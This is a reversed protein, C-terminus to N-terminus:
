RLLLILGTTKPKPFSPTITLGRTLMKLLPNDTKESEEVDGTWGLFGDRSQAALTVQSGLPLWLESHVDTQAVVPGATFAGTGSVNGFFEGSVCDYMGAEGNKRVPILDLVAVGKRAIVFRYLRGIAGNVNGLSGGKVPFAKLVTCNSLTEFTWHKTPVFTSKLIGNRWVSIADPSADIEMLADTFSVSSSNEWRSMEGNNINISFNSVLWLSNYHAYFCYSCADKRSGFLTGGDGQKTCRFAMQVRDGPSRLKVGTDIYQGGSSKIWALRAYGAPLAAQTVLTLAAFAASAM